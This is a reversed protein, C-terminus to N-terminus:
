PNLEKWKTALLTQNASAWALAEAIERAALKSSLMTLTGLAVLAERGDKARVHFHPPLHDAPYMAVTCKSLRALTPMSAIM